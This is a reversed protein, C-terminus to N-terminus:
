SFQLKTVLIYLGSAIFVDRNCWKYARVGALHSYTNSYWSPTDLDIIAVFDGPRVHRGAQRICNLLKERDVICLYFGLCVLDFRSHFPMDDGIRVKGILELWTDNIYPIAEESPEVEYGASNLLTSAVSLKHGGGRGIDLM